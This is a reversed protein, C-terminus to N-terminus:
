AHRRGDPGTARFMGACADVSADVAALLRDREAPEIRETRLMRGEARLAAIVHERAREPRRAHSILHVGARLQSEYARLAAERVRGHPMSPLEYRLEMLDREWAAPSVRRRPAEPSGAGAGPASSSGIAVIKLAEGAALRKGTRPLPHALRTVDQGDIRVGDRPRELFSAGDDGDLLVVHQSSQATGDGLDNGLLSSARAEHTVADLVLVAQDPRRGMEVTVVLEVGGADLLHRLRQKGPRSLRAFRAPM